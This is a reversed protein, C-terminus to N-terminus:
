FKIKKSLINSYINMPLDDTFPCYGSIMEFMLIGFCWWDVAQSHGKHLLIEPAIYEPTGCLTYTRKTTKKSLGFDILKLYGM